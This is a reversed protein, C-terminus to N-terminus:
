WCTSKCRHLHATNGHPVSPGSLDMAGRGSSQLETGLSQSGAGARRALPAEMMVGGLPIASPTQTDVSLCVSTYDM